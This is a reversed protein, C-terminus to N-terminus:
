TRKYCSTNIPFSERKMPNTQNITKGWIFEEDPKQM